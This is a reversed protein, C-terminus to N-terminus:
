LENLQTILNKVATIEKDFKETVVSPVVDAINELRTYENQLKSLRNVAAEFVYQIDKAEPNNVDIEYEYGGIDVFLINKVEFTENEDTPM